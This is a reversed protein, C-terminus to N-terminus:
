TRLASAAFRVQFADPVVKALFAREAFNKPFAGSFAAGRDDKAYFPRGRRTRLPAM